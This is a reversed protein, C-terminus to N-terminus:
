SEVDIAETTPQPETASETQGRSILDAVGRMRAGRDRLYHEAMKLSKDGIWEMAAKINGGTLDLVNGASGRRLGHAARYAIATVGARREAGHLAAVFSAYAYPRDRRRWQNSYFVWPGTYGDRQSWTAALAFAAIVQQPLPQVRSGGQKDWEPAWTVTGNVIDVDSWRLHLAANVRPGCYHLLTTIIWARWQRSSSPDLAAIVAEADAPVYEAPEPRREEKRFKIRYRTVKTPPILDREEAWAFVQRVTAIHHHQESPALKLERLSRRFKDLRERTVQRAITDAGAFVEFKRWYGLYNRQTRERLHEFEATVYAEWMQRLTLPPPDAPKARSEVFTEAWAKALKRNDPTNPWSRTKLRGQDRWQVRVLEREAFVKVTAGRRGLTALIKRPSM